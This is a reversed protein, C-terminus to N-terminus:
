DNYKIARGNITKKGRWQENQSNKYLSILSYNLFYIWKRCAFLLSYVESQRRTTQDFYPNADLGKLNAIQRRLSSWKDGDYYKFCYFGFQMRGEGENIMMVTVGGKIAQMASSGM